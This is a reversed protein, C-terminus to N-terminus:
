SIIHVLNAVKRNIQVRSYIIVVVVVVVVTTPHVRLKRWNDPCRSTIATPSKKEGDVITRDTHLERSETPQVLTSKSRYLFFRLAVTKCTVEVRSNKKLEQVPVLRLPFVHGYRVATTTTSINQIQVYKIGITPTPFIYPRRRPCRSCDRSYAGSEAQTHLILLSVRSPVALDTERFWIRLRSRSCSFKERNLQGHVPSALEGSQNASLQEHHSCM